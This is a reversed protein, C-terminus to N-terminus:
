RRGSVNGHLSLCGTQLQQEADRDAGHHQLCTFGVAYVKLM